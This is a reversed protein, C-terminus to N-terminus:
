RPQCLRCVVTPCRANAICCCVLPLLLLVQCHLKRGGCWGVAAPLANMSVPWCAASWSGSCVKAAAAKTAEDKKRAATAQALQELEAQVWCGFCICRSLQQMHM